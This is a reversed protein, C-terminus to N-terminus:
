KRWPLSYLDHAGSATSGSNCHSSSGPWGSWRLNDPIFDLTGIGYLEIERPVDIDWLRPRDGYVKQYASYFNRIAQQPVPTRSTRPRHHIYRGYRQECFLTYDETFEIFTHWLKDISPSVMAMPFDTVKTLEFFRLLETAVENDPTTSSYVGAFREWVHPYERLWQAASCSTIGNDGDM